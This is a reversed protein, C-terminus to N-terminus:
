RHAYKDMLEERKARVEIMKRIALIYHGSADMRNIEIRQDYLNQFEDLCDGQKPHYVCIYHADLLIQFHTPELTKNQACGVLLIGLVAFFFTKM